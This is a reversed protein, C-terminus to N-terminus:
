PQVSNGKKCIFHILISKNIMADSQLTQETCIRKNIEMGDLADYEWQKMLGIGYKANIVFGNMALLEEFELVSPLYVIRKFTNSWYNGNLYLDLAKDILGKALLNVVEVDKNIVILSFISKDNKLLGSIKNLFSNYKNKPQYELVNHCLILDYLDGISSSNFDACLLRLNKIGQDEVVKLMEESNDMAVGMRFQQCLCKLVSGTGCGIDLFVEKDFNESLLGQLIMEKRFIGWPSNCYSEYVEATTQDM